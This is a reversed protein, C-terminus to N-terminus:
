SLTGRDQTRGREIVGCLLYRAELATATLDRDSEHRFRFFCGRAIVALWRLRSLAEIIEHPIAEGLLALAPASGLPRFPPVAITPRGM